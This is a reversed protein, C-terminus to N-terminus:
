QLHNLRSENECFSVSDLIDRGEFVPRLRCYKLNCEDKYECQSCKPLDQLRINGRFLDFRTSYWSKILSINKLSGIPYEKKGGIAYICPYTTMNADIALSAHGAKCIILDGKDKMLKLDNSDKALGHNDAVRIEIIDKYKEKLRRIKDKVKDSSINSPSFMNTNEEARGIEEVFNFTIKRAKLEKSAM